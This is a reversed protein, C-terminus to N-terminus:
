LKKVDCSFDAINITLSNIYRPTNISHVGNEGERFHMRNISHAGNEGERFQMRNISGTLPGMPLRALKPDRNVRHAGNEGERFQM